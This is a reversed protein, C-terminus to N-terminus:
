MDPFKFIFMSQFIINKKMTHVHIQWAISNKRKRLCVTVKRLSIFLLARIKFDPSLKM